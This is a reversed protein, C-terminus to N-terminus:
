KPPLGYRYTDPWSYQLQAMTSSSIAFFGGAAVGLAIVIGPWYKRFNQRLAAADIYFAIVCYALLHLPLFFRTEIAGPVIAMVPLLLILLSWRWAPSAEQLGPQAPQPPGLKRVWAIWCALALVAFNLLATRTRLPSPKRTYVIGDRVDLGNIVHRTILSLFHVPHQAVVTLYYPLRFLDGRGAVENFLQAGDPDLYFVSPAPAGQSITTEYRQLTMGWVLQSAFLSHNDVHAQVALSSVGHTRQNILLQPVSVALMGAVASAIGMWRMYGRFRAHFTLLALLALMGAPIFLYITRTNYAAGMAMGSAALMGLFRGTTDQQMGRLALYLAGLALLLAPLDSLPYLLVGPFIVALLSVPVLRRAFTAKGGFAQQFAAPVLLPLALAYVLSMAMRFILLPHSSLDCLTRLPLLLAPFLYGRHTRSNWLAQPRALDWYEGADFPMVALRHSFHLTVLIAFSALCALSRQHGEVFAAIRDPWTAGRPTEM